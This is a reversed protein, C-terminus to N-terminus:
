RTELYGLLEAPYDTQIMSVGMNILRGWHTDPDHLAVSDDHYASKSAELTNVWIRAGMHQIASQGELLYNETEIKLEFAVPNTFAYQPALESLPPGGETIKPMFHTERLFSAMQLFPDDPPVEIKLVAHDLMGLQAILRYVAGLVDSKADVNVLIRGRALNMAEELTPVTHSTLVAEKGGSRDKLRLTRIESHDKSNIQGSGNTTRGVSEDHMLVLVGDKSQRVDLEVMDVGLDICAQVAALSNEPAGQWCGRHAVVMIEEGAVLRSDVQAHLPLVVLNCALVAGLASGRYRVNLSWNDAM